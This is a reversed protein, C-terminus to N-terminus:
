QRANPKEKNQSARSIYRYGTTGALLIYLSLFVPDLITQWTIYNPLIVERVGWIGFLLGLLSQIFTSDDKISPIAFILIGLMVILLPVLVRNILPRRYDISVLMGKDEADDRRSVHVKVDWEFTGLM